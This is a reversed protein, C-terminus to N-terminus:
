QADKPNTAAQRTRLPAPQTEGVRPATENLRDGPEITITITDPGDMDEWRGREVHVEHTPAEDPAPQAGFRVHTPTSDGILDLVAMTKLLGTM